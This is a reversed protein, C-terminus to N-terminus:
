RSGLLKQETVVDVDYATIKLLHGECEKLYELLSYVAAAGKPGDDIQFEAVKPLQLTEMAWVKSIIKGAKKSIKCGDIECVMYEQIYESIAM